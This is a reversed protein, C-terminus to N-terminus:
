SMDGIKTKINRKNAELADEEKNKVFVSALQKAVLELSSLLNKFEELIPRQTM